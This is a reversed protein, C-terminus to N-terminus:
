KSNIVDFRHLPGYTTEKIEISSNYKKALTDYYEKNGNYDMFSYCYDLSDGLTEILERAVDLKKFNTLVMIGRGNRVRPITLSFLNFNPNGEEGTYYTIHRCNLLEDRKYDKDKFFDELIKNIRCAVEIDIKVGYEENAKELREVFSNM